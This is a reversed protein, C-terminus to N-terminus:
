ESLFNLVLRNFVEPKELNSAHFTDLILEKRSNKIERNMIEAQQRERKEGEANLILTPSGIEQLRKLSDFAYTAAVAKFYEEKSIKNVERIFFDRLEAQEEKKFLGRAAIGANTEMSIFMLVVRNLGRALVLLMKGWLPIHCFTGALILRDVMAPYDIVFQQAILGGM